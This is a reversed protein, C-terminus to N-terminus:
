SRLFHFRTPSLYQALVQEKPLWSPEEPTAGSATQYLALLNKQSQGLTYSDLQEASATPTKEKLTQHLWERLSEFDSRKGEIIDKIIEAQFSESLSGFDVVGNETFHQWGEELEEKKLEKGYQRYNTTLQKEFEQRLAVQDLTDLALPISQYLRGPNIEKKRFDATIEPLDRGLLPKGFAAPELFALGFGEAISTTLFHSSERAWSHFDSDAGECPSTRNTVDFVIPLNHRQAFTQWFGHIEQWVQNDPKLSVAFRTKTPALASLLVAEGINKRRIARVPYLVLKETEQSLPTQESDPLLVANPLFHSQSSPLGAQKLLQQDRNNIFAYHVQPALPYNKTGLLIPYNSPRNDEAFDHTQLILPVRSEAIDTILQPYLINKGLTPNHLHWIDPIGGLHEQCHSRLIQHLNNATAPAESLYELEPVEAHPLGVPAPGASLVLHEIGLATLATSQDTIVKTVGGTRLHYHVLAVKM